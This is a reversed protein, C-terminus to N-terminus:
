KKLLEDAAKFLEKARLAITELKERVEPTLDIDRFEGGSYEQAEIVRDVDRLTLPVPSPMYGALARPEEVPRRLATAFREILDPEPRMFEGSAEQRAGREYASIISQACEAARALQMQTLGRSRRWKKLWAGFPSIKSV